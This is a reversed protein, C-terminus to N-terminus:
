DIVQEIKVEEKVEEEVPKENSSGRTSFMRYLNMQQPTYMQM